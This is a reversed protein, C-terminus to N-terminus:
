ASSPMRSEEVDRPSPSTYLLCTTTKTRTEFTKTDSLLQDAIKNRETKSMETYGSKPPWLDKEIRHWGTWEQGKELDAERLDMKPDLDGFSEAVPEVREWHLRAKAYLARAEADKGSKYLNVFTTTQASLQTAQDKVYAQYQKDAEDVLAKDAGTPTLDAGSDTVTFKSQIGKGVMGPKCATYYTGPAAKVVLERTLGPAINEVEGVIRLRDSGLLYFETVKDGDNKVSFSLTGSPAESASVKCESSTSSVTLKGNGKSDKSNTTCGTLALGAISTFAFARATRTPLIM